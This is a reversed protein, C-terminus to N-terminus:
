EGCARLLLAVNCRSWSVTSAHWADIQRDSQGQTAHTRQFRRPDRLGRRGLQHEDLAAATAVLCVALARGGRWCAASWTSVGCFAGVAALGCGFREAGWVAGPEFDAPRAPKHQCPAPRPSLSRPSCLSPFNLRIRISMACRSMHPQSTTLASSRTQGAKWLRRARGACGQGTRGLRTLSLDTGTWDLGTWRKDCLTQAPRLRADARTPCFQSRRPLTHQHLDHADPLM